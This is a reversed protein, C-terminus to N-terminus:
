KVLRLSFGQLMGENIDKTVLGEMNSYLMAFKHEVEMLATELSRAGFDKVHYQKSLHECVKGDDVISIRSHGFFKKAESHLNIPLRMDHTFDLLFRHMLITSETPTFPLFPIVLGIRGTLSNQM